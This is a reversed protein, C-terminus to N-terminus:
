GSGRRLRPSSCRCRRTPTASSSPAPSRAATCPTPATPSGCRACTRGCTPSRRTRPSAWPATCRCRRTPSRSRSARRSWRSRRSGPRPRASASRHGDHLGGQPVAPAGDRDEHPERRHHRLQRRAPGAAQRVGRAVALAPVAGGAGAGVPRHRAHLPPHPGARAPGAVGRLRPRRRPDPEGQARAREHLPHAHPRAPRRRRRLGEHRAPDRRGQHRGPVLIQSHRKHKEAKADTCVMVIYIKCRPDGAGSAFWKEGNLVWEDGDLKADCARHQHRRLLRRGARDHRLGLPDQGRAPAEAVEGQARALRLAGAGGHQRHRPGRLQLDRAGPAVLGDGRRPLRIRRHHPRLGRQQETLWFNWLGRERAKAKLGERIEEQRKTYTWRDGSKGIEAEYEHELPMIEERVMARVKEVLPKVKPTMGLDM